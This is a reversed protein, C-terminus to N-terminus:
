VMKKVKEDFNMFLMKFNLYLRNKASKHYGKRGQMRM